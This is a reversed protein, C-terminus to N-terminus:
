RGSSSENQGLHSARATPVSRYHFNVGIEDFAFRVRSLERKLFFCTFDCQLHLRKAIQPLGQFQLRTKAADHLSIPTTATQHGTTRNTRASQGIGGRQLLGSVRGPIRSRERSIIVFNSNSEDNTMQIELKGVFQVEM